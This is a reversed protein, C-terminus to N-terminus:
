LLSSIVVEVTWILPEKQFFPITHPLGIRMLLFIDTISEVQTIIEAADANTFIRALKGSCIKQIDLVEQPLLDVLTKDEDISDFNNPKSKKMM